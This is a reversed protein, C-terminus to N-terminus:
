GKEEGGERLGVGQGIVCRMESTFIVGLLLQPPRPTRPAVSRSCLKSASLVHCTSTHGMRVLITHRKHMNERSRRMADEDEVITDSHEVWSGLWGPRARRLCPSRRQAQAETQYRSREQPLAAYSAQEVTHTYYSLRYSDCLQALVWDTKPHLPCTLPCRQSESCSDQPYIYAHM